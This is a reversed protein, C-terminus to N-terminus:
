RNVGFGFHDKLGAAHKLLTAELSKADSGIKYRDLEARCEFVADEYAGVLDLLVQESLSSPKVETLFWENFRADAAVVDAAAAALALGSSDSAIFAVLVDRLSRPM